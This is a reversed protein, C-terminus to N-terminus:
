EQLYGSLEKVLDKIPLMGVRAQAAACLKSLYHRGNQSKRLLEDIYSRNLVSEGIAKKYAHFAKIMEDDRAYDTTLCLKGYINARTLQANSWTKRESNEVIGKECYEAAVRLEDPDRSLYYISKARQLWYNPNNPLVSSLKEYVRRILNGRWDPSQDSSEYIANLNDFLVLNSSDEDIEKVASYLEVILDASDNAGAKRSVEQVLRQVWAFSNSILQTESNQAIRSSSDTTEREVFPQATNPLEELLVDGMYNAGRARAIGRVLRSSIRQEIALYYLLMFQLRGSSNAAWDSTIREIKADLNSIDRISAKTIPSAALSFVNDLISRAPNWRLYGLPSTIKDVALREPADLTQNLRFV